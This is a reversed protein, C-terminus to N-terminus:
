SIQLFHRLDSLIDRPEHEVRFDTFRLPTIDHRLLWTDKVRDKEMAAVAIHYARGDLAVALRHTPWYRDIEWPGLQINTLPPPIEPHTAILRDFARELGSKSSDKRYAALVAQRPRVDVACRLSARPRESAPTRGRVRQPPGVAAM